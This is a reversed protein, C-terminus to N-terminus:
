LYRQTWTVTVTGTGELQEIDWTGPQVDPWKSFQTVGRNSTGEKAVRRNLDFTLNHTGSELRVGLRDGNFGLEYDKTDERRRAGRVEVTMDPMDSGGIIVRERTGSFVRVMTDGYRLPSPATFTLEFAGIGTGGVRDGEEFSTYHAMYYQGPHNRLQLRRDDKTVVWAAVAEKLAEFDSWMPMLARCELRIERPGLTLGTVYSGHRNPYPEMGERMGPLDDHVREVVIGLSEFAVGDFYTKDM